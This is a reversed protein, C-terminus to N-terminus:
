GGPMIVDEPNVATPNRPISCIDTAGDYQSVFIVRTETWAYIPPCQTGGFGITYNYDLYQKAEDWSIIKGKPLAGYNPINNKWYCGRWGEDGVVIALIEEDGAVELIDNAFSRKQM